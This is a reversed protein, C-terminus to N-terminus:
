AAEKRDIADRLRQLARTRIQSVRSETIHLVEGIERLSLDEYFSLTLVLRDRESLGAIGDHLAALTRAEDLAAGPEPAHEDAIADGLLWPEEGSHGAPADLTVMVRSDTDRRWRSLTDADVGLAASMEAADPTRGLRQELRAATTALREGRERVSRPVWDHSRIEDLIAGRIRPMAFTSFAFGREPEFGELAQVLGVTGASVLDGLEIGRPARQLIERAAHHVLGLHMHLLERRAQPDGDHFRGWSVREAPTM